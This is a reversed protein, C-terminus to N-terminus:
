FFITALLATDKKSNGHLKEAQKKINWCNKWRGEEDALV